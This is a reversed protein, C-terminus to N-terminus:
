RVQFLHRTKDPLSNDLLLIPLQCAVNQGRKADFVKLGGRLRKLQAEKESFCLITCLNEQIIALETGSRSGARAKICQIAAIHESPSKRLLLLM